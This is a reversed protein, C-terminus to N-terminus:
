VYLIWNDLLSFQSEMLRNLGAVKKKQAQRLGPDPYEVDYTMTKKTNM